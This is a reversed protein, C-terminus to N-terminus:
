IFFSTKTWVIINADALVHGGFFTIAAGMLSVVFLALLDWSQFDSM